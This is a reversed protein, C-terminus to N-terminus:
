PSFPEVRWHIQEVYPEAYWPEVGGDGFLDGQQSAYAQVALAAASREAATFTLSASRLALGPGPTAAVLGAAVIRLCQERENAPVYAQIYPAVRASIMFEEAAASSPTITKGDITAGLRLLRARVAHKVWAYPRDEYFGLPGPLRSHAAHVIRHDIHEGVGLPLLTVTPALATIADVLTRIVADADADDGPLAGLVLARFCRALGRRLPADRLGLHVAEVGLLALAALDEARREAHGADGESFVTLVIVREGGLARSRLFCPVSLVADDLHPSVVVITM